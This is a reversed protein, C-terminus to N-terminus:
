SAVHRCYSVGSGTGADESMDIVADTGIAVIEEQVKRGEVM